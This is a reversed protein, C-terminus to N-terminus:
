TNLVYNIYITMMVSEGLTLFNSGQAEFNVCAKATVLLHYLEISITLHVDRMDNDLRLTVELSNHAVTPTVFPLIRLAIIEAVTQQQVCLSQFDPLVRIGQAVQNIAHLPVVLKM